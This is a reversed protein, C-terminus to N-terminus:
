EGIELTVIISITHEWTNDHNQFEARLTGRGTIEFDVEFPQTVDDLAIYSDPISPVIYHIEGESDIFILRAEVLSNCGPPFHMSVKTIKGRYIIPHEVKEYTLSPVTKRFNLIVKGIKRKESEKFIYRM